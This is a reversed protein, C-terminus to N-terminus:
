KLYEELTGTAKRYSVVAANHDFLAQSLNAEASFQAAQALLLESMTGAGAAYKDQEIRFSERAQEIVQGATSVRSASERISARSIDLELRLQNNIARLHEHARRQQIRDRALDAYLSRDFLPFSVQLGLFWDPEQYTPDFGFQRTYGASAAVSPLLKGQDARHLLSAERIGELASRYEPRSEWSAANDGASNVTSDALVLHGALAPAPMGDEPDTGMLFRLTAGAAYLAEDLVLLRQQENALQVRVKLLDVRAIREVEYLLQSNKVQEALADVSAQSAARMQQLQLLKNYTNVTNAILDNRNQTLALEQIDRRTRALGVGTRLQGGSYLPFALIASWSAYDDSFHAAITTSRAPIFPVPDERRFYNADFSIRPFQRGLASGIGEESAALGLRSEAMVPNHALAAELCQRLTLGEARVVSGPLLMMGVALAALAHAASRM